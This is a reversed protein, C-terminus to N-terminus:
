PPYFLICEEVRGVSEFNAEFGRGGRKDHRHIPRETFWHRFLKSIAQRALVTVETTRQFSGGGSLVRDYRAWVRDGRQWKWQGMTNFGATPSVCCSYNLKRKIPKTKVLPVTCHFFRPGAKNGPHRLSSNNHNCILCLSLLFLFPPLPFHQVSLSSCCNYIFQSVKRREGFWM